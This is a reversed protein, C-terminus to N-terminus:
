RRIAVPSMMLREVFSRVCTRSRSPNPTSLLMLVSNASTLASATVKRMEPFSVSADSDVSGSRNSAIHANARAINERWRSFWSAMPSMLPATCDLMAPTRTTREKESSSSSSRRKPIVLESYRSFVSPRARKRPSMNGTICAIVAMPVIM